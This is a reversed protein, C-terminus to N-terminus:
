IFFSRLLLKLSCYHRFGSFSLLFLGRLLLFPLGSGFARMEGMKEKQSRARMNDMAVAIRKVGILCVMM